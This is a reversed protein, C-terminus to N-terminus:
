VGFDFITLILIMSKKSIKNKAIGSQTVNYITQKPELYFGFLPVFDFDVIKRWTYECTINSAM